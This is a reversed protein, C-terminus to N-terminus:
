MGFLRKLWTSLHDVEENSVSHAIDYKHWEVNINHAKLKDRSHEAYEVRIVEDIAGHAMFVPTKLKEDSIASVDAQTMPLYSSLAVIGGIKRPLTLGAQLAIAGGQSFGALIINSQEVGRDIEVAILEDILAISEAIGDNDQNRAEFNLSDIDFWARMAAGGNITIPRIPTNEGTEIEIFELLKNM